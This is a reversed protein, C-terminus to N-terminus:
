RIFRDGESIPYKGIKVRAENLTILGESYLQNAELYLPLVAAAIAEEETQFIDNSWHSKRWEEGAEIYQEVKKLTIDSGKAIGFRVVYGDEIQVIIPDYQFNEIKFGYSM